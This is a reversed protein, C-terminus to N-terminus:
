RWLLMSKTTIRLLSLLDDKVYVCAGVCTSVSSMWVHVWVVVWGSM